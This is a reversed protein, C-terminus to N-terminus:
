QGLVMQLFNATAKRSRARRAALARTEIKHCWHCLTRLNALDCLAGGEVLAVIHDAEWIDDGGRYNAPLELQLKVLRFALERERWTGSTHYDLWELLKAAHVCDLGCAVCIGQDREFVAYRASSWNWTRYAQGACEPSCWKIQRNSLPKGCPEWRCLRVGKEVRAVDYRARTKECTSPRIM